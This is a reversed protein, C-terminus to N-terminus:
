FEDFLGIIGWFILNQALKGVVINGRRHLSNKKPPETLSDISKKWWPHLVSGHAM